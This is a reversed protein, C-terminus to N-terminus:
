QGGLGFYYTFGFQVTVSHNGKTKEYTKTRYDIVKDNYFRNRMDLRLAFEKSLFYHQAVDLTFAIASERGGDHNITQHEYTMMGIGPSVSMDFYLIKKELLSLKAYIPVWNFSAGVFSVQRNYDAAVGQDNIFGQIVKSDSLSYRSYHLEVGYRESFYYNGTIGHVLGSSFSDTILPGTALTVAFRNQKSYLRNQVVNFEVDKPAWYQQELDSIDVKDSSKTVGGQEGSNATSNKSNPATPTAPTVVEKKDKKPRQYQSSQANAALSCFMTILFAFSLLTDRANM